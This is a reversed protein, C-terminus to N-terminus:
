RCCSPNCSVIIQSKVGSVVLSTVLVDSGVEHVLLEPTAMTNESGFVDRRDTIFFELKASHSLHIAKNVIKVSVIICKPAIPTPTLTM